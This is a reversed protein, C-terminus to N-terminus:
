DTPQLPKKQPTKFTYAPLRSPSSFLMFPIIPITKDDDVRSPKSRRGEGVGGEYDQLWAELPFVALM